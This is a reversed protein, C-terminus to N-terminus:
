EKTGKSPLLHPDEHINGSIWLDSDSFEDGFQEDHELNQAMFRANDSDYYVRGIWSYEGDEHFVIDGEYIETGNKDKLGTYQMVESMEDFQIVKDTGDGNSTLLFAYGDQNVVISEDNYYANVPDATKQSYHMCEGDWARFKIEREM